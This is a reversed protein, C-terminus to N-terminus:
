QHRSQDQSRQKLHRTEDLILTLDEESLRQVYNIKIEELLDSLLLEIEKLNEKQRAESIVTNSFNRILQVTVETTKPDELLTKLTNHVIQTLDAVLRETIQGPVSGIGPLSTIGQYVPSQSLVSTVGHHLFTELDPQVKPFVQYIVLELLHKAIVEIENVNNIDVYRRSTTRELLASFDGRRVAGQVQNVVQVIVVETIEEAIASVFGERVRANLNHLDIIKAQHLRLTTPIIRTLAFVPLFLSFPLFLPIDYWRWIMADLWTLSRYRSSIYLTRALFELLFLSVFPADILWFNNTPEGNEGISRYFNTAILPQIRKNFWNIEENFNAPSLYNPYQPNNTSWFIQFAEIASVDAKLRDGVRNRMENKIKELTGSKDAVEFPNLAIIAESQKRLKTLTEQVEVSKLGPEIGKQTIQQQLQNVTKLHAETERHPEIGKVPDYLCTVISQQMTAAPKDRPVSRDSCAMTPLPIHLKQGTLPIVVNSQLWFNRSPVYTLDFLVLALNVTAVIAMTREFWLNRRRKGPILPTYKQLAM